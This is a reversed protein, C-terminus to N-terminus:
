ALREYHLGKYDPRHGNLTQKIKGTGYGKAIFDAISGFIEGTELCRFPKRRKAARKEVQESTWTKGAHALRMKEITEPRHNKGYFHHLPGMRGTTLAERHERTFKWQGNSGFQAVNKLPCGLSRCLEGWHIEAEDLQEISDVYEVIRYEPLLGVRKLSRIWNYLKQMGVKVDVKLHEQIRKLGRRTQGVYCIAGDRPDLLFYILFKKIM